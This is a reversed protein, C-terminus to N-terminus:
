KICFTVKAGMSGLFGSGNEMMGPESFGLLSCSYLKAFPCSYIHLISVQTWTEDMKGPTSGDHNSWRQWSLFM